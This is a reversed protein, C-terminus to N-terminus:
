AVFPNKWEMLVCYNKSEEDDLYNEVVNLPTRGCSLLFSVVPDRLEGAVVQQVYQKADMEEAQKHYGPMRGGGLLRTVNLRIVTHYMAQMLLKGIGLKRYAPSVSIDVIYLTNGEPDHNRIYGGDTIEEWTHTPHAPDFQVRLGTISGVLRGGIEACLAGEPFLQVHNSLQEENWWLDEPFPPPFCESQIKIMDSFDKKTYNRITVEVPRNEAYVFQRSKYM